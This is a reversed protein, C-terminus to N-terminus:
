LHKVSGNGGGHMGNGSDLGDFSKPPRGEIDRFRSKRSASGTAAASATALTATASTTEEPAFAAEAVNAAVVTELERTTDHETL